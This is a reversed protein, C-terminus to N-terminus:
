KKAALISPALQLPFPPDRRVIGAPAPVPELRGSSSHSYVDTITMRWQGTKAYGILFQDGVVVKERAGLSLSGIKSEPDGGMFRGFTHKPMGVSGGFTFLVENSRLFATREATVVELRAHVSYLGPLPFDPNQIMGPDTVRNKLRQGDSKWEISLVEGAKLV